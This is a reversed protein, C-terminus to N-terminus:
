HRGELESAHKACYPTQPLLELRKPEIEAGCVVCEGYTGAEIRDLAAAIQVLEAEAMKGEDELVEENEREIALDEPDDLDRSELEKEIEAIRGLLEARRAELKRRYTETDLMDNEKGFAMRGRMVHSRGHHLDLMM